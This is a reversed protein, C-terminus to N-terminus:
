HKKPNVQKEINTVEKVCEVLEDANNEDNDLTKLPVNDIDTARSKKTFGYFSSM